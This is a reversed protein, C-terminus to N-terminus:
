SFYREVVGPFRCRLCNNKNRTCFDQYVQMLGQTQQDSQLVQLLREKDGLIYHKMFRLWQNDPPRSRTAFLRHLWTEMAPMRGARAYILGIPVAINIFIERSRDPGILQHRGSLRKGGPTYHCTWYDEAELCFYRMAKRGSAVNYGKTESISVATNLFALFDEFLGAGGRSAVLHSLAAIRRYPFNAPRMRGFKWDAPDMVADRFPAGHRKWARNLATFYDRDEPALDKVPPFRSELLGSVGFLVAQLPLVREGANGRGPLLTKLASVPVREALTRFPQKNAPYGLAEAIGEYFTQEYGNVIIRDHYRDMKTQIRADGASNLLHVLKEHPLRALPEHCLGYNFQNLLPYADFDLRENLKLVGERLYRKLELELIHPRSFNDPTEGTRQHGGGRTKWMFVHLIVNDYANNASHGHAKWDTGYVHLEVDGELMRGRIRIVANKFDPGEGFNWHGPFLVELPEGGTTHLKHTHFLQDNWVCRIVKEPIPTEEEEAVGSRQYLETFKRYIDTFVATSM